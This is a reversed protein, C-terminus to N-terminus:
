VNPFFLGSSENLHIVIGFPPNGIELITIQGFLSHDCVNTGSEVEVTANIRNFLKSVIRPLFNLKKELDQM